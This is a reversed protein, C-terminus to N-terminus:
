GFVADRALDLATLVAGQLVPNGDVATARV